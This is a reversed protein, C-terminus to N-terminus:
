LVAYRDGGTGSHSFHKVALGPKARAPDAVHFHLQLASGATLVVFAFKIEAGILVFVPNVGDGAFDKIGPPFHPLEMM